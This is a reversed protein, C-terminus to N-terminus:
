SYKHLHSMNFQAYKLLVYFNLGTFVSIDQQEQFMKGCKSCMLCLLLSATDATFAFLDECM